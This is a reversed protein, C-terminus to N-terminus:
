CTGRRRRSARLQRARAADVARQPLRAAPGAGLLRQPRRRGRVPDCEAVAPALLDPSAVSSSRSSTSATRTATSGARPPRSRSDRRARGARGSSRSCAATPIRSCGTSRTSSRGARRVVHAPGPPEEHGGRADEAAPVRVPARRDRAPLHAGARESGQPPARRPRARRRRRARPDDAVPAGARRPRRRRHARGQPRRPRRIGRRDAAARGHAAGDARPDARRGTRAAGDAAAAVADSARAFAVFFADGQTDVEVGDHTPLRRGSGGGISTSRTRTRRRRARAAAEDVGRRGHLAVDRRRDPSRAGDCVIM